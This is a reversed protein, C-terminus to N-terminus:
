IEIINIKINIAGYIDYMFKWCQRGIDVCVIVSNFLTIMVQTINIQSYRAVEPIESSRHKM